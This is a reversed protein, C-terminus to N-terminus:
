PDPLLSPMVGGYHHDIWAHELFEWADRGQQRLSTTVTLLRSRCIAGQRSQVGHSIKRQIVSQSLAREAANSSRSVLACQRPGRRESVATTAWSWWGSCRQWDITWEKWQHWQAFPQQQLCFLEAACEASAGPRKSPQLGLLEIAAATSRSLGQMFVTVVSTVMVWQWGLKGM